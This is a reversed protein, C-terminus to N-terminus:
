DGNNRNLGTVTLKSQSEVNDDAADKTFFQQADVSIKACDLTNTSSVNAHGTNFTLGSGPCSISCPALPDNVPRSCFLRSQKSPITLSIVCIDSTGFAFQFSVAAACSVSSNNEITVVVFSRSGPLRTQSTYNPIRYRDVQGVPAAVVSKAGAPQDASSGEAARGSAAMLLSLFVISSVTYVAERVFKSLYHM